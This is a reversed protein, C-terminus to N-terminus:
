STQRLAGRLLTAFFRDRWTAPSELNMRAICAEEESLNGAHAAKGTGLGKLALPILTLPSASASRLCGLAPILRQEIDTFDSGFPFAPLQGATRAGELKRALAQPTNNTFREPIVYNRALKGADKATAMLETQFRSDTISLMAAVVEADTKNRLDAVGYETVVIDRLHRPITTHGYSWRINSEPGNSGERTARIAIISRAGELAFAQAVFNYQGGVGSVVRGDELGDSVIAGLLTAIMGSNVFRANTRARRKEEEPGYLENVYSVPRMAIRARSAEPMERLRKYFDAPGLFFGAQLCVGDVERSVVGAEILDLFAPVFMESAGFLGEEFSGSHYLHQQDPSTSAARDLAHMATDFDDPKKHRLILGAAVADGISGIGIQLTGGDPVLGAIRLGIAHDTLSVPERPPAFLPWDAGSLVHDAESEAIEADGGMFPLNNNVECVLLPSIEGRDRAALLDPAIDPNCSMSIRPGDPTERRAVIQALVNPKHDLIAGLAHTYNASIYNQQAAPTSLWKGALFFFEIIKINDPLTGRRQPEVYALEPYDGFLRDIVPKIFARELPNTPNPKELTLATLITLSIAPDAQARAVLENCVLNAKGLGLPMALVISGGTSAIIDDVITAATKHHKTM